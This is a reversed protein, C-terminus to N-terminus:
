LPQCVPCYYVSGGLYAEKVIKGGCVPCGAKLSNKSMQTRYGGPKGSLDKETDRMGQETMDRLVRVICSLLRDRDRGDLTSLKRKPHLGAALLIDQIVGNGIGPFRQETALLAKLSLNEKSGEVVKHYYAPFEKSLPSVAIRSMRYYENEYDGQHLIIGGYMSVTFVLASGDTFLIALQYDKPFKGISVFRVNVGDNVSLMYGNSFGAELFIGFGEALTVTSGKLLGEYDAPNGQFWCFKHPKTPPLVRSVEKGAVTKRLQEAMVLVEPLELM